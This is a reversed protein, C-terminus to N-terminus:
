LPPLVMCTKNNFQYDVRMEWHGHKTLCHMAKLRYWFDNELDGFGEEFDTWKKNFNVTSGKRNRQIVTWGGGDTTMDCYSQAQVTTFPHQGCLGVSPCEAVNYVASPVKNSPFVILDCCRDITLSALTCEEKFLHCQEFLTKCNEDANVLLLSLTLIVLQTIIKM